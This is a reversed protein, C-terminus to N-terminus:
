GGEGWPIIVRNGYDLLVQCKYYIRCEQQQLTLEAQANAALIDM